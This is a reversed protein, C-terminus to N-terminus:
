SRTYCIYYIKDSDDLEPTFGNRDFLNMAHTNSRHIEAVLYRSNYDTMCRMDSIANQILYDTDGNGRSSGTAVITVVLGGVPHDKIFKDGNYDHLIIFSQNRVRVYRIRDNDKILPHSTIYIRDKDPLERLTHNVSTEISSNAYLM